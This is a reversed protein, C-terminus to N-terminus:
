AGSACRSSSSAAATREAQVPVCGSSACVVHAPDGTTAPAAARSSSPTSTASLPGSSRRARGRTCYIGQDSRQRHYPLDAAYRRKEPRAHGPDPHFQPGPHGAGLTLDVPKDESTGSAHGRTGTSISTSAPRLRGRGRYKDPRVHDGCSAFWSEQVLDDRTCWASYAARASRGNTSTTARNAHRAQAGSRQEGVSIDKWEAVYHASFPPIDPMARLLHRREARQPQRMCRRAGSGTLMAALMGHGHRTNRM